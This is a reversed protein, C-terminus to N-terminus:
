ANRISFVVATSGQQFQYRRPSFDTVFILMKQQMISKEDDGRKM